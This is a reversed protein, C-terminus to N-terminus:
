VKGNINIIRTTKTITKALIYENCAKLTLLLTEYTFVLPPCNANFTVNCTLAPFCVSLICIMSLSGSIVFIYSFYPLSGSLISWAVLLNNQFMGLNFAPSSLTNEYIKYELRLMTPLNSSGAADSMKSLSPFLTSTKELLANKAM